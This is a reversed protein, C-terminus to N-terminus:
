REGGDVDRENGDGDRVTVKLRPPAKMARVAAPKAKPRWKGHWVGVRVPIGTGECAACDSGKGGSGGCATCDNRVFGRRSM